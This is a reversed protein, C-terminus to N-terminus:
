RVCSSFVADVKGVTSDLDDGVCGPGLAVVCGDAVLALSDEGLLRCSSVCRSGRKDLNCSSGNDNGRGGHNPNGRNNGRSRNDLSNGRNHNSGGNGRSGGRGRDDVVGRNDVMSRKYVM